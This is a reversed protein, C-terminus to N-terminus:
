AFLVDSELLVAQWTPNSITVATTIFLEIKQSM